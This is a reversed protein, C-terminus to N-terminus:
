NNNAIIKYYLNTLQSHKLATRLESDPTYAEFNVGFTYESMKDGLIRIKNFLEDSDHRGEYLSHYYDLCLTTLEFVDIGYKLGRIDENVKNLLASGLRIAKQQGPNLANSGGDFMDPTLKSYECYKIDRLIKLARNLEIVMEYGYAVANDGLHYEKYFPKDPKQGNWECLHTLISTGFWGRWSMIYRTANEILMYAQKAKQAYTGYNDNFYKDILADADANRDRSLAALLYQTLSRIGWELLPVHMYQIETAGSEIYYKIENKMRKTFLLPLDEFKSVNYYENIAFAMGTKAWGALCREYIQNKKCSTDYLDHDYCRLIPSYMGFDGADILNQPVPNLPPEMTDTGEYIDFSLRINHDIEGALYAEDVRKRIHSLFHLTVDSGNGLKLCEPCQCCSGWTDFGALEFVHENKWENKIRDIVTDALVDMLETNSVCFQANIANEATIEGDRKGYWDKHADIYYRGDETINMPDLIKEFIHGGTKYVFGLKDQLPKSHAHCNHLNMRNRAMWVLFTTSEKLLQEFHFGRGKPMDYRYHRFDPMKLESVIPVYEEKPSYWRIGQAELLEYAAYLTGVRSDGQLIIDNGDKIIDFEEGNKGLTTLVINFEGKQEKVSADLGAKQLYTCIEDAAYSLTCRDAIEKQNLFDIKAEENAWRKYYKPAEDYPIIISIQM